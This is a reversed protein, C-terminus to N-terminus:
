EDLSRRRAKVEDWTTHACHPSGDGTESATQVVKAARDLLTQRARAAETATSFGRRTVQTWKGTLPDKSTRAKFYWGSADRYVGKFRPM